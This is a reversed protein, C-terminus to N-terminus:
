GGILENSSVSNEDFSRRFAESVSDLKPRIKLDSTTLSFKRAGEQNSPASQQHKIKKSSCVNVDILLRMLKVPFKYRM